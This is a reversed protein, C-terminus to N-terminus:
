AALGIVLIAGIIGGVWAKRTLDRSIRGLGAQTQIMTETLLKNGFQGLSYDLLLLPM